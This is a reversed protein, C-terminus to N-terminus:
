PTTWGGARRGTISRVQIRYFLPHMAQSPNRHEHAGIAPAWWEAHKQLLELVRARTQKNDPTDPLEEYRGFIVISMWRDPDEVEDFEVCVLPNARMWQVKQGLTTFGYLSDGEYVFHFPVIYPQNVHACALRGFRAHALVHFCEQTTMDQVFM